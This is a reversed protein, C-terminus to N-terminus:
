GRREGDDGPLRGYPKEGGPLWGDITKGANTGRDAIADRILMTACSAVPIHLWRAERELMIYVQADIEIRRRNASTSM